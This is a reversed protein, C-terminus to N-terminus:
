DTIAHEASAATDEPVTGDDDAEVRLRRLDVFLRRVDCLGGIIFWITFVIGLFGVFWIKWWWFVSWAYDSIGFMFQIATAIGMIGWWGMSWWFTAWFLIRDGRTLEPTVGLMERWSRKGHTSGALVDEPLAHPGRHLLKDLDYATAPGLLSVVIYLVSATLMAIFYIYQGNIPFTTAHALLWANHPFARRLSPILTNTWLQQAILGGTALVSGAILAMWAATTTGRKWYLGGVIVAGAGGLYIAGTVAFYMLVLQKLPFWLSFFFAFTAVGTISLRLLRLHAAPSLHTKRVPLIVDQIFISGWSHLYTNDCSIASSLIVAGFLGMLGTPLIATLFVPVTMEGRDTLNPIQSLRHQIPAALSAFASDHLVAYAALPILLLCAQQVFSRWNSLIGAMKAEHPSRASANFGSNGQWSRANYIQGFIGILFYFINFDAVKGTKFPNVMSHGPPATQLGAIISNWSFKNFLFLLVVVFIIMMLVGQVFDIIMISIQGGALATFLAFGLYLAMVVPFTSISISGLHWTTSLGFFAVLFRTTVAPFIGYNLVGSIWSLLGAFIRFNRSYRAEFFQALTLARTQRFRYIIFGTLALLLGVPLSLLTWWQTPLGGAYVMEWAAIISIAGGIGSSVTLLYRGAVRGAALFDAVSRIFRRTYLTIAFLGSVFVFVISWDLAHM